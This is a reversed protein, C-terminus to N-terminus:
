WDKVQGSPTSKSRLKHERRERLVREAIQRLYAATDEPSLPVLDDKDPIPPLNGVGPPPPAETPHAGTATDGPQASGEPGAGTSETAGPIQNGRPTPGQERPQEPPASPNDPEPEDPNQEDRAAKARALQTQALELNARANAALEPGIDPQRLCEEYYGIARTLLRLDRPQAQQVVSNALDYLSRARRQGNADDLARLYHLEAERFRGLRYLAAAKDFAVLGPDTIREEAKTFADLATAYDGHEFAAAGRRVWAEAHDAPTAGFGLLGLPLLWGLRCFYTM